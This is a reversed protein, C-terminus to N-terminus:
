WHTSYLSINIMTILIFDLLIYLVKLEKVIRSNAKVINIM